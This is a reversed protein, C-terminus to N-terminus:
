ERYQQQIYTIGALFLTTSITLLKFFDENTNKYFSTSNFSVYALVIALLLDNNRKALLFKQYDLWGTSGQVKYNPNLSNYKLIKNEIEDIKDRSKQQIKARYSISNMKYVWSIFFFLSLWSSIKEIYPLGIIILDYITM